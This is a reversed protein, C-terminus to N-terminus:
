SFTSPVASILTILMRPEVSVAALVGSIAVNACVNLMSANERKVNPSKSWCIHSFGDTQWCLPMM